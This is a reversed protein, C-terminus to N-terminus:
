RAVWIANPRAGFGIRPWTRDGETPLFLDGAHHYNRQLTPEFVPDVLNYSEDWIVTPYRHNTLAELVEHRVRDGNVKDDARLVDAIAMSHAHIESGGALADYYGFGFSFVEGKARLARWREIMAKGSAVDRGRPVYKRQDYVNVFLQLFVVVAVAAQMRRGLTSEAKQRVAWGATMGALGAVVGCYPIMANLFGGNKMLTSVGALGAAVMIGGYFVAVRWSPLAGCVLAAVALAVGIPMPEWMVRHFYHPWEAHPPMGHKSPVEFVYYRFWNESALDMWQVAGITLVAFAGAIIVGRRWSILLSAGLVPMALLLATQKTFFSFFLLVGAAVASGRTTGHRAAYAGGLFFVLFLSDVRALDVWAGTLPFTIAYLGIGILPGIVGGVEKKIFLAILAFTGLLAGNSVLRAWFLSVGFVKMFAACVWYYLPTYIAPTWEFSPARYLPKGALVIRVHDMTAGEMWELTFPYAIRSFTTGMTQIFAAWAALGVFVCLAFVWDNRLRSVFQICAAKLQARDIKPRPITTWM